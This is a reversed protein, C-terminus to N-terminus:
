GGIAVNTTAVPEDYIAAIEDAFDNMIINRKISLKPTLHGSAETWESDLITFKRISEARSVHANAIDVARQVESRVATNKSADALSMKADLGNNALWTPLMEPDLTVLASIFPRQDGVVVVQGIIPNARIPDELAAPAVNKGGATVIIEKKRGTITLFGESDFSGIDGTHFWGGESFAEATAEPNNWYEKFVNIGRVEIEGDDALRVGVGPLAPGVTGIKSKDALNVTAPATTETLGYGELIVVGLSHFFHGLRSGLPASGSVAYVVNGGMAERLKSYVLKNFLAFKLKMGFPIKKGAELLKSHEIAVDAAARFIKGKGGAEAKQEASNYVKEFVRPVALLFTPKFSGLAPLLQRTDPQHGTRVGAHIDLISIFRAFVHATTIFLLTSAGPTQVVADLAKASNRSLEVFNSHTLVCGKPRGTSGSTYILTAIDSGVALTRRREIEADSVSAGQATLTDIAGLHLQWVERILPLDGRVEDVRAFHEPSEVILAIAGSDELIWQIQSPSSTEYIPVMVAGAYFLAFDVLTWEYTTRALFGIKEGPQIGAAAFGKALAVVATQFDAASIDRWGDGDPVSFLARDPTAEVRKVLLDAVNADPDAPVIAPVEFQVM